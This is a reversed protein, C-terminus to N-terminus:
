PGATLVGVGGVVWWCTCMASKGPVDDLLGPPATRTGILVGLPGCSSTKWVVKLMNRADLVM